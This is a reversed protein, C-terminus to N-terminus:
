SFIEHFRVLVEMTSADVKKLSKEFELKPKSEEIRREMFYKHIQIEVLGDSSKLLDRLYLSLLREFEQCIHFYYIEDYDLDADISEYDKLNYNLTLSKHEDDDVIVFLHLFEQHFEALHKLQQFRQQKPINIM